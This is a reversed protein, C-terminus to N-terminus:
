QNVKLKGWTIPLRDAPDVSLITNFGSDMFEQIEKQSKVTNSVWLEDMAGAFHSSSSTRRYGIDLSPEGSVDIVGGGPIPGGKDEEGNVYIM